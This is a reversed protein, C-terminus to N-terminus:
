RRHREATAGAPLGKPQRLHAIGRQEVFRTTLSWLFDGYAVPAFTEGEMGDLPAIVADVAPEFFFPISHRERGSGVVRHTTARIRGGTWQELLKGFNVALTGEIPPVTLWAGNRGQAQLGEVGDQALLTVFGSDVHAAGLLYGDRLRLEAERGAFSAADRLPYRILRLTSIGGEFAGDFRDEPLGLGRAFARMIAAGSREMVLYYGAVAARWGPLAAETPLPTAERLPDAPDPVVDRAVDPGMDIGEKYTPHGSQLPFWGRYVNPRSRDFSWRWLTRKEAEPLSFISLMRRRLSASLADDPLGSVTMFGADGAAAMSAADVADRAASPRDFLASIDIHPIM